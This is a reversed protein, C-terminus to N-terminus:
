DKWFSITTRDNKKYAALLALTANFARELLVCADPMKSLYDPYTYDQYILGLEIERYFKDLHDIRTTLFEGPPNLGKYVNWFHRTVDEISDYGVVWLTDEHNNRRIGEILELSANVIVKYRQNVLDKIKRALKEIDILEPWHQIFEKSEWKKRTELLARKFWEIPCERIIRNYNNNNAYEEVLNLYRIVYLASDKDPDKKRSYWARQIEQLRPENKVNKKCNDCYFVVLDDNLFQKGCSPCIM